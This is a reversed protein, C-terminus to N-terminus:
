RGARSLFDGLGERQFASGLTKAPSRTVRVRYGAQQCARGEGEGREAEPTDLIAMKRSATYLCVM